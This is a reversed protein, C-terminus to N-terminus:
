LTIFMNLTGFYVTLMERVSVDQEDELLYEYFFKQVLHQFRAVSIRKECTLWDKIKLIIFMFCHDDYM